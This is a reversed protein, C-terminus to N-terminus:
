NGAAYAALKAKLEDVRAQAEVLDNEADTLNLQLLLYSHRNRFKTSFEEGFLDQITQINEADCREYTYAIYAAYEWEVLDLADTFENIALQDARVGFVVLDGNRM